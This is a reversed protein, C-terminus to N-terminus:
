WLSLPKLCCSNIRVIRSVLLRCDLHQAGEPGKRAEELKQHSDAEDRGAKEECQRRQTETETESSGTMLISTMAKLIWGSVGPYIKGKVDKAM